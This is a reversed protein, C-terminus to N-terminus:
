AVNPLKYILVDAQSPLATLTQHLQHTLPDAVCSLIVLLDDQSADVVYQGALVDRLLGLLSTTAPSSSPGRCRAGSWM